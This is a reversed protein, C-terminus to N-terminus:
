WPCITYDRGKRDPGHHHKAHSTQPQHQFSLYSLFRNTRIFLGCYGTMAPSTFSTWGEDGEPDSNSTASTLEQIWDAQPTVKKICQKKSKDNLRLNIGFRPNKVTM